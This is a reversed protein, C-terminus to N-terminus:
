LSLGTLSGEFRIAPVAEVYVRQEVQHGRKKLKRVLPELHLYGCIVVTTTGPESQALKGVWADERVDDSPVRCHPCLERRRQQEELIGAAQKEADTMDINYWRLCKAEALRQAVSNGITGEHHEEAIATLPEIWQRKTFAYLLAEFEPDSSQMRHDTGIVIFSM